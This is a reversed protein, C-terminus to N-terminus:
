KKRPLFSCPLFHARGRGAGLWPRRVGGSQTTHPPPARAAPTEPTGGRAAGSRWKGMALLVGQRAPPAPAPACGGGSDGGRGGLLSEPGGGAGETGGGLGGARLAAAVDALGPVRHRSAPGLPAVSRGPGPQPDGGM